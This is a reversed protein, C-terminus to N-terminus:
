QSLAGAIAKVLKQASLGNLVVVDVGASEAERQQEVSGVLTVYRSRPWRAKAQVIAPGVVGAGAGCALLVLDPYGDVDAALVSADDIEHIMGVQPMAVLLAQVGDRLPGPKAVILVTASDEIMQKTMM